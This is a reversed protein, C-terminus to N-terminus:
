KKSPLLQTALSERFQSCIKNNIPFHLAIEKLFLLSHHTFGLQHLISAFDYICSSLNECQSAAKVYYQLSKLYNKQVFANKAKAYTSSTPSQYFFSSPQLSRIFKQTFFILRNHLQQRRSQHCKEM